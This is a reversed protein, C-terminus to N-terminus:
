KIGNVLAIIADARRNIGALGDGFGTVGQHDGRISKVVGFVVGLNNGISHVTGNIASVNGDIQNVTTGIGKATTNIEKVTGNITQASVLTSTLMLVAGLAWAVVGVLIKGALGREDTLRRM